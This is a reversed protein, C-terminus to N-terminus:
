SSYRCNSYVNEEIISLIEQNDLSHYCCNQIEGSPYDKIKLIEYWLNKKFTNIWTYLHKSKFCVNQNQLRWFLILLLWSMFSKKKWFIKKNIKNKKFIKVYMYKCILTYAYSMFLLIFKCQICVCKFYINSVNLM